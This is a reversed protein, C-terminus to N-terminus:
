DSQTPFNRVAGSFTDIYQTTSLVLSSESAPQQSLLGNILHITRRENPGFATAIHPFNTALFTLSDGAYPQQKADPQAASNFGVCRIPVLYCLM